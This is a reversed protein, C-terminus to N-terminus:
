SSQPSLVTCAKKLISVGLIRFLLLDPKYRISAYGLALIPYNYFVFEEAKCLQERETGSLTTNETPAMHLLVFSKYESLGDWDFALDNLCISDVLVTSYRPIDKLLEAMPKGALYTMDLGYFQLKLVFENNFINGGTQFNPNLTNILYIM